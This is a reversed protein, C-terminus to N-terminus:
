CSLYAIYYNELVFFLNLHSQHSDIEIMFTEFNYLIISTIHEIKSM